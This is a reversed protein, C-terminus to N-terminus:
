ATRIWMYGVVRYPQIINFPQGNGTYGSAGANQGATNNNYEFMYGWAGTGQENAVYDAHNHRAMEQITQTHKKEGGEKGIEDFYEDADDEDLGVCVKGKLREWTGFGLITNPNTNSQTIYTSGVPFIDEQMKNLNEASAPTNGSYEPMHVEHEVGDIVVYAGKVLTGNEFKM